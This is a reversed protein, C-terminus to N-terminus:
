SKEAQNQHSDEGQGSTEERALRFVRRIKGCAVLTM